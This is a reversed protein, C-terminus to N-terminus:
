FFLALLVLLGLVQNSKFVKLCSQPDDKDWISVQWFIQLIVPAMFFITMFSPAATYKAILIFLAFAAFFGTVYLKSKEGFLRATSKVGAGRDDEIDQHAYITDYALTWFIGAIYLFLAGMDLNSTASVWGMLIGWNFTFGLFLQPWWTFRKMVPYTGVLVLSLIGLLITFFPFQLLIGFSLFLLVGLLILAKERSIEGSALPRTKTREVSADIKQDWLDNVICGASRMLLAGISFYLAHRWGEAPVTFINGYALVQGWWCPILLLWIGIPRDLRVLKIYPHWAAPTKQFLLKHLQIDSSM